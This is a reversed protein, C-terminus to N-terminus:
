RSFHDYAAPVAVRHGRRTFVAAPAGASVAGIRTLPVGFREAFDAEPLPARAAILLEYEEGGLVDDPAAGAVAPVQDLDVVIAVHSAAALHGADGPLGDSLDIAATAGHAALWRAEAIRAVPHALRVRHGADPQGGAELARLAAAPGGLAGTVYLLDGPQCTSRRLPTRAFGLVTTTITLPEAAALNGGRIVTGAARAAEAIGDALGEVLERSASPLQLSVLIGLPSAAMAALDSLAATAARYGIEASSLWGSRFHVGELATDTSAVLHEGRPVTLIAADDGVGVALAGWRRLLARIADFEGGAGLPTEGDGPRTM